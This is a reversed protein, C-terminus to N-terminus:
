EAKVAVPEAPPAVHDDRRAGRRALSVFVSAALLPLLLTFTFRIAEAFAAPNNVSARSETSAITMTTGLAGALTSISAIMAALSGYNSRAVDAYVAVQSAPRLLGGGVGVLVLPLIVAVAATEVGFRAYFVVAVFTLAAGGAAILRPPYSDALRGGIPGAIVTSIPLAMMLLGVSLPDVFLVKRLYLPTFITIPGQVFAAVALTFMAICFSMSRFFRLHFLPASFRSEYHLLTLVGAAGVAFWLLTATSLWGSHPGTSLGILIAPFGVLLLLAGWVDFVQKHREDEGLLFFHQVVALMLGLSMNFLFIARWSFLDLILGGMTPGTLQGAAMFSAFLGLVQGRREPAVSAAMIAAALPSAMALGLAMIVRMAMLHPFSFATASLGSGVAYIVVGVRYVRRRGLIDAIRGFCLSMSAMMIGGIISVWQVSSLSVHFEKQIDALAINTSNLNSQLLFSGFGLICLLRVEEKSMGKLVNVTNLSAQHYDIPVLNLLRGTAPARV